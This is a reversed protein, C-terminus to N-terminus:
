EPPAPRVYSRLPVEPLVLAVVFALAVFPVGWLFVADVSRTFSLLVDNRVFPPLAALQSASSLSTASLSRGVGHAHPLLRHLNYGLRNILVSGFISTGLAGGLTRFFTIASTSTGMDKFEVANQTAIVVIQISLGLGVGIVSMAVAMFWYPTHQTLRSLMVFGLILIPMGVVPFIKYKGRRSIIQGSGVSGVVIGLTLPVLALGSKIASDGRVLQQYEPLFIVAGFLALGALFAIAASASFVKNRFLYLPLLPEKAKTQWAVFSSLLVVSAVGLGLVQPSGWSYTNGGWVTLLLLASSGSAVLAAGFYDISHQVRRAPLKLVISTVILAAIGVPLNIYFIWRWSFTDTFFGGLLPGGVSALAFVGGTYGQYRGREKPSVVDGIIALSLAFLGGGGLGQLARFAILQYVNQSLGSLASGILFLVIAFQFIKKRGYLDSIKGYLPTVVTSALLYATVIWSLHSVGGLQAVIRPLATSVITQDLAALLMALMVGSFIVLIERHSYVVGAPSEAVNPSSEAAAPRSGQLDKSM